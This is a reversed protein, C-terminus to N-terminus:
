PAEKLVVHHARSQAWNAWDGDCDFLRRDFRKADAINRLEDELEKVRDRLLSEVDGLRGKVPIADAFMKAHAAEKERWGPENLDRWVTSPQGANNM